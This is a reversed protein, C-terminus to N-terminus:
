MSHRATRSSFVCMENPNGGAARLGGRRRPGPVPHARGGRAAAVSVAYWQRCNADFQTRIAVARGSGAATEAALAVSAMRRPPFIALVSSFLSQPFRGQLLSERWREPKAGPRPNAHQPCSLPRVSGPGRPSGAPVPRARRLGCGGRGLSRPRPWSRGHAAHRFVLDDVQGSVGSVKHQPDALVGADAAISVCGDRTM